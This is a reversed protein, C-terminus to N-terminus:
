KKDSDFVIGATGMKKHANEMVENQQYTRTGTALEMQKRERERRQNVKDIKNKGSYHGHFAHSLQKYAEKTTLQRGAEDVYELKVQPKYDKMSEVYDKSWQRDLREQEKNRMEKLEERTLEDAKGRRRKKQGSNNNNNNNDEEEKPTQPQNRGLQKIRLREKRSEQERKRQDVMWQERSRQMRERDKQDDTLQDLMNRQRLLKLAGSIGTGVSPEDEEKITDLVPKKNSSTTTTATLGKQQPADDKKTTVIQAEEEIEMRNDESEAMASKLGQVFEITGSLVLDDNEAGNVGAPEADMDAEKAQKIQQAIESSTTSPKPRKAVRRVKAIASQLDEDDDEEIKNDQRTLLYNVRETDMDLPLDDDDIKRKKSKKGKSKKKSSKRFLLSAAEESTYYDSVADQKTQAAETLPIAVQGSKQQKFEREKKAEEDEVVGGEQIMISAGEDENETDSLYRSSPNAKQRRRKDANKQARRTDSLEINHLGLSQQDGEELDDITQDELTLIHESGAAFDSLKHSVRMGSLDNFSYTTTLPIDEEAEEEEEQAMSRIKAKRQKKTKKPKGIPALGLSARLQNADQVSVPKQNTNNSSM